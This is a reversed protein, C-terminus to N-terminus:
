GHNTLTKSSVPSSALPQIKYAHPTLLKEWYKFSRIKKIIYKCPHFVYLGEYPVIKNNIFYYLM